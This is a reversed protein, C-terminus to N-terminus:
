TYYIGSRTEIESMDISSRRRVLQKQVDNGSEIFDERRVDQRTKARRLRRNEIVAASRLCLKFESGLKRKLDQLPLTYIVQLFGFFFSVDGSIGYNHHELYAKLYSNRLQM